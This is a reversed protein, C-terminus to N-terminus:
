LKLGEMIWNTTCVAILKDLMPKPEEDPIEKDNNEFNESEEINEDIDYRDNKSVYDESEEFGLIEIDTYYWHLIEDYTFDELAMGIAGNQSMGIGHGFGRGEFIAEDGDFKVEFWQSKLKSTGLKTRINNKLLVTSGKSGIIELEIVRDNESIDIIEIDKINGIDSFKDKLDEVTYTATWSSKGEVEIEYTDEVGKLYPLKSSWVNEPAETHGGSTSSFYACAIEDDYTIVQGITEDVAQKVLEDAEIDKYVQSSTTSTVHFEADEASHEIKYVAYSRSAVAQAKLAELPVRASKNMDVTKYYLGMESQVVSYLYEELEIEIIEDDSMQVKIYEPIEVGAFTITNLVTIFFLISFIKKM